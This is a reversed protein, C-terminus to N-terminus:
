AAYPFQLLVGESPALELKHLEVSGEQRQPDSSLVLSASDPLQDHRLAVTTKETGLNLAVLFRDNQDWVRLYAYVNASATLQLPVFDGHLLSREKGKRESLTKYLSLLSHKDTSEVQYSSTGGSVRRRRRSDHQSNSNWSTRRDWM